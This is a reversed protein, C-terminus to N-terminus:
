DILWFFYIFLNGKLFTVLDLDNRRDVQAITWETPVAVTGCHIQSWDDHQKNLFKRYRAIQSALAMFEADAHM